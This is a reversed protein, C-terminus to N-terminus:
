IYNQKLRERTSGDIKNVYVVRASDEFQLMWLSTDLNCKALFQKHEYTLKKPQKM